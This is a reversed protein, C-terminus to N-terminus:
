ACAKSSTYRYNVERTWAARAGKRHVVHLAEVPQTGPKRVRKSPRIGIIRVVPILSWDACCSCRYSAALQNQRSVSPEDEGTATETDLTQATEMIPRRAFRSCWVDRKRRDLSLLILGNVARM